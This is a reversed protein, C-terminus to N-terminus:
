EAPVEFFDAPVLPIAAHMAADLVNKQHQAPIRGSKKWSQVTRPPLELIRALATPGGFKAIIRETPTM